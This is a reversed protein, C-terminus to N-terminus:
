PLLLLSAFVAATATLYAPKQETDTHQASPYDSTVWRAAHIHSACKVFVHANKTIRIFEHITHPLTNGLKTGFLMGWCGFEEKRRENNWRLEKSECEETTKKGTTENNPVDNTKWTQKTKKMGFSNELPTNTGKKRKYMSNSRLEFCKLRLYKLHLVYLECWLLM